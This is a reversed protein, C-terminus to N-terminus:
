HIRRLEERSLRAMLKEYCDDCIVATDMGAAKEKAFEISYEAAAEAETWESEFTGGCADCTYSM